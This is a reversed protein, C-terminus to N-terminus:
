FAKYVLFKVLFGSPTLLVGQAQLRKHAHTVSRTSPAKPPTLLVGQAQLRKLAHTVSRTSPTKQPHSYCEKHKSDKPPTLLVGQAQLRKPPTLVVGQAQLRKPAHTVSRTSPAKQATQNTLNPTLFGTSQSSHENTKNILTM